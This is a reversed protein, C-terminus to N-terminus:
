PHLFAPSQCPALIAHERTTKRDGLVGAFYDMLGQRRFRDPALAAIRASLTLDAGAFPFIAIGGEPTQYADPRFLAPFPAPEDFYRALMEQALNRALIQDVRDGYSWSLDELAPYYRGRNRDGVVVTTLGDRSGSPSFSGRVSLEDTHAEVRVLRSRVVTISRVVTDTKGGATVSVRIKHTGERLAPLPIDVPEFARGTATLPAASLSPAAVRFSAADGAKLDTGFARVHVSPRVSVLYSDHLSVDAF